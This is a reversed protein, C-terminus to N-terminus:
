TRLQLTTVETDRLGCGYLVELIARDRLPFRRWSLDVELLQKVEEQSLIDPLPPTVKPARLLEAPDESSSAFLRGFRQQKELRGLFRQELEQKNGGGLLQALTRFQDSQEARAFLPLVRSASYILTHPYWWQDSTEDLLSRVNLLLDAEM